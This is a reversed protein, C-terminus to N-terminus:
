TIDLLLPLAAIDYKVYHVIASNLLIRLRMEREGVWGGIM